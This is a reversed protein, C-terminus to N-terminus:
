NNTNSPTTKITEAIANQFSWWDFPIEAPLHGYIGRGGSPHSLTKKTFLFRQGNGVSVARGQKNGFGVDTSTVIDKTDAYGIFDFERSYVSWVADPIDAVWSDYSGREPDNVQKTNNKIHATVIVTMNKNDRLWTLAECISRHLPVALKNGNGFRDFTSKECLDPHDAVVKKVVIECLTTLSDVAVTEFSHDNKALWALAEMLEDYSSIADNNKAVPIDAAGQEGKLWLIIPKNLGYEVVKGNEVRSGACFSTKGMKEKAVILMTPPKHVAKSSISNIDFAM